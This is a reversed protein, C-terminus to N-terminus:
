TTIKEMSNLVDVLKQAFHYADHFNDFDAISMEVATFAHINVLWSSPIEEGLLIYPQIRIQTVDASEGEWIVGGLVSNQSSEIFKTM